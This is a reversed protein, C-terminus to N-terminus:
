RLYYRTELFVLWFINLLLILGQAGVWRIYERNYERPKENRPLCPPSSARLFCLFDAHTFRPAPRCAAWKVRTRAGIEPMCWIRQRSFAEHGDFLTPFVRTFSPPPSPSLFQFLSPKPLRKPPTAESQTTGTQKYIVGDGRKKATKRERDEGGERQGGRAWGQQQM